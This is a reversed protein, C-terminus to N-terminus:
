EDPPHAKLDKAHWTGCYKGDSDRLEYTWPSLRKYVKFPGLYKPALKATFYQAKDSLVYNRRWVPPSSTKIEHEVLTTCGLTDGMEVFANHVLDGLLKSQEPTLETQPQLAVANSFKWAGHRLDPVIGMARWFDAGLILTHPLSPIVLVKILRVRNQLQFPITLSGLSTCKGGNAVTCSIIDNKDLPLNLCGLIKWGKGGLITNTAGSDLLGLMKTGFISVELYPREDGEAHAPLKCNWCVVEDVHSSTSPRETDTYIYALDPEILSNRNRPPPVFSEISDKSTELKRGLILLQDISTVNTLSLQSQYFPAISEAPGQTRQRIEQLLKENFNPTQFQLRLEEVLQTWSQIKNKISRFWILAKGTFLDSASNLLQNKTVSRSICLEEVNELFASLSIKSSDGSFQVLNWKSVPISKISTVLSPQAPAPLHQESESAEDSSSDDESSDTGLTTSSLMTALGILSDANQSMRKVKRAKSKLESQLNSLEILFNSRQMHEEDNSSQSREARQFVHVLKTSIKLFLSSTNLDAFRFITRLCKRMEVVTTKNTIGRFALEYLLEDKELRNIELKFDM